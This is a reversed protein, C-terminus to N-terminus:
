RTVEDDSLAIRLLGELVLNEVRRVPIDLLPVVSGAAGGSLLCIAGASTTQTSLLRFMREIAGATAQLCGSVIAAHTHRPLAQFDSEALPLQATGGALARRMLDVGPLILGGQFRGAADLHDVTTATGANVVLCATGPLLHHAGILAAWRDAGLREPQDYGNTVGCQSYRSENWLLRLSVKESVRELDARATSAAVICATARTPRIEEPLNELIGGLRALDDLPLADQGLWRNEVCSWLGWKLRTNGCDLCLHTKQKQQEQQLKPAKTTM